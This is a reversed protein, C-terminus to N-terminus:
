LFFKKIVFVQQTGAGAFRVSYNTTNEEDQNGESVYQNGTTLPLGNVVATATGTNIITISNCLSRVEQPANILEFKEFFKRM